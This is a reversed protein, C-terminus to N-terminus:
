LNFITHIKHTSMKRYNRSRFTLIKASNKTGHIWKILKKLLNPRHSKTQDGRPFGKLNIGNNKIPNSAYKWVKLIHLLTYAYVRKYKTYLIYVCACVSIDMWILCLVSLTIIWPEYCKSKLFINSVFFLM